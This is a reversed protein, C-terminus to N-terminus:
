PLIQLGYLEIIYDETVPTLEFVGTSTPARLVIDFTAGSDKLHKLVLADQPNLALLYSRIRTKPMPTPQATNVPASQNQDEVVELVLATVSVKQFTDLTFSRTQPEVPNGNVDVTMQGASEVQGNITAFIDIVDGRNIVSQTSLLDDSPFAMMVHDDAIIFSLDRSNNTPDALNHTLLMEGQVLDTKVIKGVAAEITTVADRPAFEVPVSATKVDTGEIRDGLVLDRTLIVVTTKVTEAETNQATNNNQLRQSLLTSAFIGVAVLIVGVIIIIVARTRNKM